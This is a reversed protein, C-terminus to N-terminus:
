PAAEYGVPVTYTSRPVDENCFERVRDQFDAMNHASKTMEWLKTSARTELAPMSSDPYRLEYEALLINRWRVYDPLSLMM